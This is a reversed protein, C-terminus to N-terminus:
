NVTRHYYNSIYRQTYSCSTIRDVRRTYQPTIDVWGTVPIYAKLYDSGINPLSPCGSFHIEFLDWGDSHTSTGTVAYALEWTSTQFNYIYVRSEGANKWSQTFYTNGEPYARVYKQYFTTDLATCRDFGANNFNYICWERQTVGSPNWYRTTSELAGRDTLLTPAYLLDNLPLTVDTRVEQGAYLVTYDANINPITGFAQDIAAPPPLSSDEADQSQRKKIFEERGKGVAHYPLGENIKKRYAEEDAPLPFIEPNTYTGNRYYPPAPLDNPNDPPPPTGGPVPQVYVPLTSDPQGQTAAVVAGWGLLLLAAAITGIKFFKKDM